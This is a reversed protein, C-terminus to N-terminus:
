RQHAAVQPDLAVRDQASVGALIEVKDAAAEGLRVQRLQAHGQGDVVYVADLEGRRLVSRLPVFLHEPATGATALAIAGPLRVRAFMGPALGTTGSPLDLRLEVSHTAPDVLPLREVRIPLLQAPGGVRGPVEVRAGQAATGAAVAAEPVMASVRLASPDYLRLLARGPLAMDGLTVPVEAVIGGYPATVVYFGSQTRAAGAQALQANVQAQTATFQAQAREFAGQSIYQKDFLLKQREFEQRAVDLAARAAQVQADGASATQEAARADLRLLVQGARVAEGARVRIEVVAGSVQAAVVTQRSAEVVGDFVAGRALASSEVAVSALADPAPSQAPAAVGTALLVLGAGALGVGKWVSRNCKMPGWTEQIPALRLPM